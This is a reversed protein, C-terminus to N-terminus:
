IDCQSRVEMMRFLFYVFHFKIAQKSPIANQSVMNKVEIESLQFMFKEPFRMQNRKVQERLRIARVGYLEALDRDLMVKHNRILYIKNMLVEDPVVSSKEKSM